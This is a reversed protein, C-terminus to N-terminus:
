ASVLRDKMAKAAAHGRTSVNLKGMLNRVHIKVTWPSIGLIAGIEQNTKGICILKLVERERASLDVEREQAKLLYHSRLASHLHPVIMHLIYKLEESWATIGSFCFYSTAGGHLDRMGHAAMNRMNHEDFMKMWGIDRADSLSASFTEDFFVPVNQELWHRILPSNIHEDSDICNSIFVDPFGVNISDLITMPTISAIGCLFREHPVIQKLTPYVEDVFATRSTIRHCAAFLSFLEEPRSRHDTKLIM